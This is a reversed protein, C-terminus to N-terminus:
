CDEGERGELLIIRMRKVVMVRRVRGRRVVEFGVGFGFWVFGDSLIASQGVEIRGRCTRAASM